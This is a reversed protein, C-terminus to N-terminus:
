PRGQRLHAPALVLRIRSVHNRTIESRSAFDGILREEKNEM